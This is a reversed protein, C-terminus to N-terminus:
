LHSNQHVVVVLLSITAVLIAKTLPHFGLKLAIGLPLIEFQKWHMYFAYELLWTCLLIGSDEIAM